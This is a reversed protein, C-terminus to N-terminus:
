IVSMGLAGCPPALLVQWDETVKDWIMEMVPSRVDNPWRLMNLSSDPDHLGDVLVKFKKDYNPILSWNLCWDFQGM